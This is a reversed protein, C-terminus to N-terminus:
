GSPKESSLWHGPVRYGTPIRTAHDGKAADLQEQTLGIAESLDAGFLQADILESETLDAKTLIANSLNAGRLNAYRLNAQALQAEILTAKSLLAWILNAKVLAAGTLDAECLRALGANVDLLLAGRLRAQDLNAGCLWAGTLLAGALDAGHLDADPFFCGHLNLREPEAYQQRRRIVAAVAGLDPPLDPAKDHEIDAEVLDRPARSHERAYATLIEFITRYYKQPSDRAIQELTYIGGLRIDVAGHGLQEIARSFRETLQGEQLVAV